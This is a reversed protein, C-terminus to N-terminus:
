NFHDFFLTRATYGVNTNRAPFLFWRTQYFGPGNAHPFRATALGNARNSDTDFRSLHLSVRCANELIEVSM